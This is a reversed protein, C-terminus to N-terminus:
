GETSDKESAGTTSASLERVRLEARDLQDSCANALERGRAYLALAEELTAAGSELQAVIAQLEAFGAEYSLTTEAIKKGRPSM